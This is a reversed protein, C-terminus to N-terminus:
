EVLHIRDGVAIAGAQVTRAYMGFNFGLGFVSDQRGRYGGILALTKLDVEGTAPHRTTGACRQVPGGIEIVCEGVSMQRGEWLDEEHATAGDFEILMRFRRADVDPLGAAQALQRTSADGLITLPEVDVGGSEEDAKVLRLARGARESLVDDWPGPALHGDVTRYGFFDAHHRDGLHVPSEVLVRPGDAISLVETTPDFIAKLAFLSGTKAVSVLRDADDVLYFDRDGVAGHSTVAIRQPHHLMLGKIPTVSLRTVQM